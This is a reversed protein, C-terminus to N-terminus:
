TGSERLGRLTINSWDGTIWNRAVLALAFSALWVLRSQYRDHPNSLVGCIAANGVLALLLFGLFVTTTRDHRRLSAAFAFCLGFLSLWAITLHVRNIIGFDIQGQQQRAGLYTHMQGPIFQTLPRLLLWEQPEIQDGTKFRTFQYWTDALASEAQAVPYHKLSNWIIRSSEARTGMFRGMKLFPTARGWLWQDATRPLVDKYACLRYQARPCTDDLLRMVIGDQLMRAFVFVPGARSVFIEGTLEYNSGVILALGTVCCLMPEVIRPRLWRHTRLVAAIARYALAMAALFCGLLFHSPHVALSIAAAAALLFARWEGLQPRHFMLLYLSLVATAAFCDPEIQGVYWPLSTLMVLGVAIALFSALSLRPAVARGTEVAVFATTAAQVLAILWLSTRAGGYDLFLSYVPSREELFVRGLGELLYAGTDYFIIPFGNWLATTLTLPILTAVALAEAIPDSLPFAALRTARVFWLPKM